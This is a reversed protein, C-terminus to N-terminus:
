RFRKRDMLVAAEGSNFGAEQLHRQVMMDQMMRGRQGSGWYRDDGYSLMELEWIARQRRQKTEAAMQARAQKIALDHEAKAIAAEAKSKAKDFEDALAKDYGYQQRVEEPLNDFRVSTAGGDHSFQIFSPKIRVNRLGEYVKGDLTELRTLSVAPKAAATGSFEGGIAQLSAATIKEPELRSVGSSHLIRLKGGEADVATVQELTRGDVLEIKEPVGWAALTLFIGLLSAKM